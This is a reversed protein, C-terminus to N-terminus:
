GGSSAWLIEISDDTEIQTDPWNRRPIVMSNLAVAVGTPVPAGCVMEVIVQVTSGQPVTKVEGNVIINM